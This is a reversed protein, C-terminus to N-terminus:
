VHATALKNTFLQSKAILSEIIEVTRERGNLSQFQVSLEQAKQRYSPDELLRKAMEYVKQTSLHQVPIYDGAQSYRLRAATGPQDFSIPIALTPVGQSIADMVTNLGGHTVCLSAHSLLEFQPAYDVVIASAPIDDPNIDVCKNGLSIALQVELDKFARAVMNFVDARLNLITGLSFYVLPKGNLKEYPFQLTSPYKNSIPGVNEFCTPSSPRPYDLFAPIQAIQAYPSVPYFHRRCDYPLLGHKIREKNICDFLPAFEKVFGEIGMRNRTRAAPTNLYEWNTFFPPISEEWDLNLGVAVSVYPIHMYDAVTAGTFDSQDIIAFDIAQTELAAPLENFWLRIQALQGRLWFRMADLGHRSGLGKQIYNVANRPIKGVGIPHFEFGAALIRAKVENFQFFIVSHGREQLEKGIYLFPNIHGVTPPTIIGIRAM